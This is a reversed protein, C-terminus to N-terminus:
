GAVVVRDRGAAKAAYLAADARQLVDELAEDDARRVSVGISVTLALARGAADCPRAAVAGRLREAAAQAEEVGAGPLLLVFEEGGLRAVVDQARAQERLRDGLARLVADGVAHGHQDNIRKFRDADVLLVALGHGNSWCRAASADFGRRNALGTLADEDAQAALRRVLRHQMLMLLGFTAVLPLTAAIAHMALNSPLGFLAAADLGPQAIVAVSRWVLSGLLAAYVAVLLGRARSRPREADALLLHLAEVLPVALLAAGLLMRAHLSDHGWLFAASVVAQAALLLVDRRRRPARGHFRRLAGVQLLQSALLAVNGGVVVVGDPLTGRLSLLLWSLALLALGAAWDRAAPRLDAGFDRLVVVFGATAALSMVAALVLLTALDIQMGGAYRTSAM